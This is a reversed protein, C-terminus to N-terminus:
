DEWDIEEDEESPYISNNLVGTLPELTIWEVCPILYTELPHFQM